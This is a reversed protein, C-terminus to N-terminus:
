YKLYDDGLVVYFDRPTVGDTGAKFNYKVEFEVGNAVYQKYLRGTECFVDNERYLSATFKVLKRGETGDCDFIKRCKFKVTMYIFPQAGNVSPYYRRDVSYSYIEATSYIEGTKEDIYNVKAPLDKVEFNVLAELDLGYGLNAYEEETKVSITCIDAGGNSTYAKVTCTGAKHSTIVGDVCTAIETNSSEWKLDGEGNAFVVSASLRYEQGIAMDVHGDTLQVVDYVSYDDNGEGCSYLVFSFLVSFLLFISVLKRM